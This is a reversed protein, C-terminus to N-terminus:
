YNAVLTTANALLNGNHFVRVTVQKYNLDSPSPWPSINFARTYGAFGPVTETPYNSPDIHDFGQNKREARIKEMGEQVLQIGTTIEVPPPANKPALVAGFVQLVGVSAVSLIVMVIIMEILTVGQGDRIKGM